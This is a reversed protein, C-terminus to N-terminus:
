SSVAMPPGTNRLFRNQESPIRQPTPERNEHTYEADASFIGRFMLVCLISVLIRKKM